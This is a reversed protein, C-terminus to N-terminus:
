ESRPKRPRGTARPPRGVHRKGRGARSKGGARAGSALRQLARQETNSLERARGRQLDGLRLPGMRLRLLRRVPHDLARLSRRIQRKRGERLVIL